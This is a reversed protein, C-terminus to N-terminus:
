TVSQGMDMIDDHKSCNDPTGSNDTNPRINDITKILSRKLTVLNDSENQQFCFNNEPLATEEANVGCTVPSCCVV